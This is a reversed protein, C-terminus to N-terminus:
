HSVKQLFGSFKDRWKGALPQHKGVKKGSLGAEFARLADKQKKDLNVPTEVVVRILVDGRRSRRVPQVGKGRLRFLRGTQTGAPIKLEEPGDLTPVEIKEGLTAASFSIPIECYLHEGDRQFVEHPRVEIEVYLDGSRAGPQGADGEGTLRIRDGTDVGAPIKVSLTQESRIRGQGRCDDCPNTIMRGSGRCEPCTQQVSFFGQQIRVQGVGRCTSCEGVGGHQAGLGDCTECLHYKPVEIQVELGRVAEELDLQLGYRLDSGRRPRSRRDGGFFEGFIDNFIDAVNGFGAGVGPDVGAHGFQDYMARRDPDGLIEYAEKAEKFKDQATDDDPNRDPHHKMALRRFARKLDHESADRRVGLVEYYDRKAM